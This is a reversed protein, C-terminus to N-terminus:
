KPVPLLVKKRDKKCDHAIFRDEGMQIAVGVATEGCAVCKASATGAAPTTATAPAAKAPPEYDEITWAMNGNGAKYKDLKVPGIGALKHEDTELLAQLQEFLPDRYSNKSLSMDFEDGGSARVMTLTWQKKPNGDKDPFKSTRSDDIHKIFLPTSTKYLDEREQENLFNGPPPM